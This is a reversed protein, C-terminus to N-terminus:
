AYRDIECSLPQSGEMGAPVEKKNLLQELRGAKRSDAVIPVTRTLQQCIQLDGGLHDAEQWVISMAQQFALRRERRTTLHYDADVPTGLLVVYRRLFSPQHTENGSKGTSAAELDTKNRHQKTRSTIGVAVSSNCLFQPTDSDGGDEDVHPDRVNRAHQPFTIQHYASGEM